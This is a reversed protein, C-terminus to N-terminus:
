FCIGYYLLKYELQNRKKLMEETDIQCETSVYDRAPGLILEEMGLYKKGNHEIVLEWKYGSDGFVKFLQFEYAEDIHFKGDNDTITKEINDEHIVSVSANPVPTNKNLVIGDVEPSIREFHPIPACASLLFLLVILYFKLM